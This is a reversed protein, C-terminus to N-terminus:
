GSEPHGAPERDVPADPACGWRRGWEARFREREEPSMSQLKEEFRRRWWEHRWGGRCHWPRGGRLLVHSLLLLGVAQGFTVSPGKFLSPVLANWLLMTALSFGAVAVVFFVIGGVVKRVPCRIM